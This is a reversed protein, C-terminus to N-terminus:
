SFRIVDGAPMFRLLKTNEFLYETYMSNVNSNHRYRIRLRDWRNIFNNGEFSIRNNPINSRVFPSASGSALWPAEALPTHSRTSVWSAVKVTMFPSLGCSTKLSM